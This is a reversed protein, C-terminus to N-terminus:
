VHWKRVINLATGDMLEKKTFQNYSLFALWNALSGRYLNNIDSLKDVTVPNTVHKDLTIAPIGAWIAETAANSNISVVCHYDENLLEEYLSTRERLPKKERFKIPKDTYKRLEKEVDYKWTKLDAHFISAAFPGPEIIYIFEGDGRWQKPFEKFNGLRDVPAEFYSGYHLHNRVLRHWKKNPELFNTYGSDIFWMPYGNDIKTVLLDENGVTNRILADQKYSNFDKRRIFKAKPDLHLGLSKVFNQKNSKRYLQFINELGLTDIFYEINNHVKHFDEEKRNDLEQKCKKIHDVIDRKVSKFLKDKFKKKGDDGIQYRATPDSVRAVKLWKERKRHFEVIFDATQLEIQPLNEMVRKYDILSLLFHAIEKDNLLLRINKSKNNAM